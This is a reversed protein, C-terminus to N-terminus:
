GRAVVLTVVRIALVGLAAAAAVFSAVFALMARARRLRYERRAAPGDEEWRPNRRRARPLSPM